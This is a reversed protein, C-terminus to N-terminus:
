PRAATARRRRLALYAGAALLATAGAAIGVTPASSGTEALDPEAAVEETAGGQPTTDAAEAAEAPDAPGEEDECDVWFVKHKGAGHEGEFQWTLKYHGSALVLDDTRGEGAV